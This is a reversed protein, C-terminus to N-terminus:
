TTAYYLFPFWGMWAFFQVHCVRRVRVPMSKYTGIIQKLAAIASKHGVSPPTEASSGKGFAFCCGVAVTISIAGSAILSLGQFHSLRLGRLDGQLSFSGSIYGIINGVGASYTAWANAKPQLNLSFNEVISVRVGMQIPQIAIGLAYVLITACALAWQSQLNEDQSGLKNAFFSVLDEIWALSLISVVALITGALIFPRRKGWSSRCRDSYLGVIPQVFVGCLPAAM